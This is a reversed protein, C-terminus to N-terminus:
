LLWLNDLHLQLSLLLGAPIIELCHSVLFNKKTQLAQQNYMVLGSYIRALVTL